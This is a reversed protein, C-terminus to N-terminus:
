CSSGLISCIILYFNLGFRFSVRGLKNKYAAKIQMRQATNRNGLIQILQKENTGICLDVNSNNM